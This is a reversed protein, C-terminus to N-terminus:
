NVLIKIQNKEKLLVEFGETIFDDLRIRKTILKDAPFYGKPCSMEILLLEKQQVNRWNAAVALFDV